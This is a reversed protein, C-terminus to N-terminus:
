GQPDFGNAFIRDTDPELNSTASNNTQNPDTAPANVVAVASNSLTGSTGPAVTGSAVYVAQGGSALSAIDAISGSSGAGCSSGGSASCTWTPATFAAPFTDVVVATAASPGANAITITYALPQGPTYAAPQTTITVGVDAQVAAAQCDIVARIVWDGGVGLTQSNFWVFMGPGLRAQIANRNPQIGDADNVVSPGAPGPDESFTYAVVFTENQAVPVSLPITNNEDLYRYENLVGDTLVPGLVSQALAGPNPFTGARHIDVADGITIPAGGTFSRWFVQVAVVNGTCPSTLWSAAKEGTVFGAQIVGASFDTLGDNKVTVEAAPAAAAMGIGIALIGTRM